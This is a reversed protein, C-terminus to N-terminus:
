LPPTCRKITDNEYDCRVWTRASIIRIKETARIRRNITIDIELFRLNECKLSAAAAMSQYLLLFLKSSIIFIEFFFKSSVYLNQIFLM